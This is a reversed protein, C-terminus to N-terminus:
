LATLFKNKSASEIRKMWAEPTMRFQQLMELLIGDAKPITYFGKEWSATRTHGKKELVAFAEAYTLAYVAAKSFNAANWVYAIILNPVSADKRDLSFRQGADIKAHIPCAVFAGGDDAGAGSYAIFDVRRDVVPIAVDIGGKVLQEVLLNRGALRMFEADQEPQFGNGESGEEVKDDVIVVRTGQAFRHAHMGRKGHSFDYEPLM